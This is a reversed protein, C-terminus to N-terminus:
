ISQREIIKDAISTIINKEGFGGSKSIIQIEKQNWELISVVAGRTIEGVPHLQAGELTKMVGMLTDGGTMLITHKLGSEILSKVILGHCEGILYRIQNGPIKKQESYNLTAKKDNIDFTDVIVVPEKKCLHELRELFRRGKEHSYYEKDLKQEPLLNIRMSGNVVADEIQVRTIPNLSGCAVYLGPTKRIEKPEKRELGLIQPLCGALGACGAIIRLRDYAKLEEARKEMDESTHADFLYISNELVEEQPFPAEREVVTVPYSCQIGILQSIDSHAVPEFPDLGFASHELLQEDIYHIGKKTVRNMEPYAPLFFIRKEESADVVAQLEAGVNGRLASDTKKFITPINMNIGYDAIGKVIDYAQAATKSRTESDIVLVQATQSVMDDKLEEAVIVQTEIGYKAFQIGTDLAGTFDDAIILVKIM